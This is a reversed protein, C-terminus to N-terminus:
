SQPMEKAYEAPSLKGDKNTDLKAFQSKLKANGSAESQSIMGDKNTDLSNFAAHSSTTSAVTAPATAKAPTDAAFASGCAFVFAVASIATKNM